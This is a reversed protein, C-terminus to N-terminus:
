DIWCFILTFISNKSRHIDHANEPGFTQTTQSQSVWAEPHPDSDFGDENM